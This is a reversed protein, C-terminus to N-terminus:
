RPATHGLSALEDLSRKVRKKLEPEEITYSLRIRRDYDDADGYAMQLTRNTAEDLQEMRKKFLDFMNNRYQDADIRGDLYDAMLRVFNAVTIQVDDM